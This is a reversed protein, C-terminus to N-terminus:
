VRFVNPKGGKGARRVLDTSVDLVDHEVSNVAMMFASASGATLLGAAHRDDMLGTEVLSLAMALSRPSTTRLGMDEGHTDYLPIVGRKVAEIASRAAPSKFRESAWKVWDSLDPEVNVVCFRNLMPQSLSEPGGGAREPNAAAVICVDEPLAFAGVTRSTILTLLTDTVSRRAKDIEDLFLCRTGKAQELRDLWDPKTRRAIIGDRWPIGGIDEEVCSSLLLKEVHDFRQEIIHTKGIGPVGVLLLPVLKNPHINKM